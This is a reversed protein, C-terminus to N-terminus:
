GGAGAPADAEAAAGEPGGAAEQRQARITNRREAVAQARATEAAPSGCGTLKERFYCVVSIREAGCEDCTGNLPGHECALQTNGHWDHADMLLLDGDQMDVGVRWEPFTLVGGTYAGRRMVALTSFGAELDGTDKHVGTAYTNNVTVTSFPTGPVVWDPHTAAAQAAQAAYRDPVHQEMAVAISALLPHLRQWEPLHQGTWGTLRCAMGFSRGELAGLTPSAVRRARDTLQQGYRVREGGSALGRNDTRLGKLSHLVEYIAPDSAFEAIAGPLYICLPRGDPKRVTAPGTLVAALDRPGLVKGAKAALEEQDARNRVRIDLM